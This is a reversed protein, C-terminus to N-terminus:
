RRRRALCLLGALAPTLWVATTGGDPVATGPTAYRYTVRATTEHLLELGFQPRGAASLWIVLSPKEHRVEPIDGEHEATLEHNFSARYGLTTGLPVAVPHWHEMESYDSTLLTNPANEIFFRATSRVSPSPPPATTGITWLTGTVTTEVDIEVSLLPLDLTAPAFHWQIPLSQGYTTSQVSATFAAEQTITVARAVANLLPTSLVLVIIPLTLKM